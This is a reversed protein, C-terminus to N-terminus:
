HLIKDDIYWIMKQFLIMLTPSILYYSNKISHYHEFFIKFRNKFFCYMKKIKDTDLTQTEDFIHNAM